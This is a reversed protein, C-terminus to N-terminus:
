CDDVASARGHGRVDTIECIPKRFSDGVQGVGLAELLGRFVGLVGSFYQPGGSSTGPQRGQRGTGLNHRGPPFGSEPLNVDDSM